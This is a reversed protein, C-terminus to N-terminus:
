TLALLERVAFDASGMVLSDIQAAISEDYGETM